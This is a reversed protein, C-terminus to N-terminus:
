RISLHVDTNVILISKAVCSQQSANSILILSHAMEHVEHLVPCALAAAIVRAVCAEGGVGPHEHHDVEQAIASLRSHERSNVAFVMMVLMMTMM